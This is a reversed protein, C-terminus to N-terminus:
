RRHPLPFWHTFPSRPPACQMDWESGDWKGVSFEDSAEAWFLLPTGDKPATEIPQPEPWTALDARIYGSTIPEKPYPDSHAFAVGEDDFTITIERPAETM